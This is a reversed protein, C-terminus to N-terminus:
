SAPDDFRGIRTKVRALSGRFRAQVQQTLGGRLLRDLEYAASSSDVIVHLVGNRLGSLSTHAALEAPVLQEWLAILQGLKRQTRQTHQATGTVLTGISPDRERMSRHKRLLQLQQIPSRM